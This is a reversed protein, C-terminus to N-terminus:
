EVSASSITLLVMVESVTVSLERSLTAVNWDVLATLVGGGVGSAAAGKETPSANPIPAATTAAARTAPRSDQDRRFLLGTWAGPIFPCPGSFASPLSSGRSLIRISGMCMHNKVTCSAPSLIRLSIRVPSATVKVGCQGLLTSHGKIPTRISRM